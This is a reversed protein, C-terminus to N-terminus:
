KKPPGAIGQKIKKRVSAFYLVIGALIAVLASLAPLHKIDMGPIETKPLTLAAVILLTWVLSAGRVVTKMKGLRFGEVSGSDRTTILTGLM